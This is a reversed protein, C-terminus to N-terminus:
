VNKIEVGCGTMIYAETQTCVDTNSQLFESSLIQDEASTGCGWHESEPIIAQKHLAPSPPIVMVVPSATVATLTRDCVHWLDQLMTLQYTCPHSFHVQSPDSLLEFSLCLQQGEPVSQSPSYCIGGKYGMACMYHDVSISKKYGIGIGIIQVNIYGIVSIRFRYKNVTIFYIVSHLLSAVISTIVTKGTNLRLMTVDSAWWPVM